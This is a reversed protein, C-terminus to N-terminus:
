NAEVKSQLLNFSKLQTSTWKDGGLVGFQLPGASPEAIIFDPSEPDGM